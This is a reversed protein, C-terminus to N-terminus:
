RRFMNVTEPSIDVVVSLLVWRFMQESIFKMKERKCKDDDDETSSDCQRKYEGRERIVRRETLHNVKFRIRPTIENVNWDRNERVRWDRMWAKTQFINCYITHNKRQTPFTLFNTIVHGPPERGRAGIPRDAMAYWAGGGGCGSWCNKHFTNLWTSLSLLPWIVASSNPRASDFPVQDGNLGSVTRSIIMINSLSWVPSM